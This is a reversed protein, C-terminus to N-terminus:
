RAMKGNARLVDMFFYSWKDVFEPSGVLKDILRARKDASTDALFDRIEAPSPIRGTVDLKVRRLFEDDTALPANPVGDRKMKRFVEEDIFNRYPVPASASLKPLRSALRDTLDGAENTQKRFLPAHVAAPVDSMDQRPTDTKKPPQSESDGFCLLPALCVLALTGSRM